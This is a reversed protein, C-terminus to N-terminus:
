RRPEQRLRAFAPLSEPAPAILARREPLGDVSILLVRDYVRGSSGTLLAAAALILARM